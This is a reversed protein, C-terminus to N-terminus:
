PSISSKPHIFSAFDMLSNKMNNHAILALYQKKDQYSQAFNQEDRAQKAARFLERIKLATDQEEHLFKKFKHIDFRAISISGLAQVDANRTPEEFFMSEGVFDGTNLLAIQHDGDVVQSTGSLIFIISDAPEGQRM